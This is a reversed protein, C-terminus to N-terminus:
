WSAYLWIVGAGPGSLTLNKQKMELIEKVEGGFM